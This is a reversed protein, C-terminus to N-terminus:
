LEELFHGRSHFAFIIISQVFKLNSVEFMNLEIDDNSKEIIEEYNLNNIIEIDFNEILEYVTIKLQKPKEIISQVNKLNKKDLEDIICFKELNSLTNGGIINEQNLFPLFSNKYHHALYLRESARSLILFEMNIITKKRMM